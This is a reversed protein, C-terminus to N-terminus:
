ADVAHRVVKHVMADTTAATVSLEVNGSVIAASFDAEASDGTYLTGFETVHTNTGDHILLIETSQYKSDTTNTTQVTFKASRFDAAAFTDLVTPTVSSTSVSGTKTATGAMVLSTASLNFSDDSDKFRIRDVGDTRMVVDKAFADAYYGIAIGQAGQVTAYGGIAVGYSGASTASYGIGISGGASSNLSKAKAGVMVGKDSLDQTYAGFLTSYQGKADAKFGVVTSYEFDTAAGYGIAISGYGNISIDHGIAVSAGDNANVFGGIVVSYDSSASSEYGMVISYKNTDTVTALAGVAISKYGASAEVGLSTAYAGQGKANYGIVTAKYSGSTTWANAGVVTSYYSGDDIFAFTGVATGYQSGGQVEAGYGLATAYYSNEGVEAAYGVSTTYKSSSRAWSGISTTKYQYATTERYGAYYGVAVNYKGAEYGTGGLVHGGANWGVLVSSQEKAATPSTAREGGAFNGLFTSYGISDSAFATVVGVGAGFDYGGTHFYKNHTLVRSYNYGSHASTGLTINGIATYLNGAHTGVDGYYSTISGNYAYIEGSKSYINGADTEFGVSGYGPDITGAVVKNIFIDASSDVSMVGATFDLGHGAQIGAGATASIIGTAPDYSISGTGSVANKADSDARATTYYLNDGESLDTTSKAVFAADIDSDVRALTYYKNTGESLDSTSSATLDSDFGQYIGTLTTGSIAGASTVSSVEIAGAVLAAASFTPDAIDVVNTSELDQTLGQFLHYKQTTADRFLGTHMQDIGDSYHSVFGMDLVDSADNSDALHLLPDNITVTTSNVTTTTGNVTLDGALVLNNFEVDDGSGLAQGASIVGTAADYSIGTGASMLGRVEADTRETFSVVGTAPDYSLDGGASLHARVESASPGTVTIVGTAADYSASGDGGADTVSILGRVEADTRETFSFVGTASDYALDGGASLHARVESASPGTFTFAGTAADYTLSGDGGADVASLSARVESASPGTYTLVGTSANYSLAGDGGTDNVSLVPIPLETVASVRGKADLTVSVRKASDGYTGATGVDPLTNGSIPAVLEGQANVILQGGAELGSKLVFNHNSQSM